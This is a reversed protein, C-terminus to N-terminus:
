DNASTFFYYKVRTLNWLVHLTICENTRLAFKQQNKTWFSRWVRSRIRNSFDSREFGASLMMKCQLNERFSYMRYFIRWTILNSGCSVLKIFISELLAIVRPIALYTGLQIFWNKISFHSYHTSGYSLPNTQAKWGAAGPELRLCVM